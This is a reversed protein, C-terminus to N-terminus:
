KGRPQISFLLDCTKLCTEQSLLPAIWCLRPEWFGPPADIGNTAQRCRLPKGHPHDPSIWTFEQLQAFARYLPTDFFAEEMSPDSLTFWQQMFHVRLMPHLSFLPRGNKGEPYYPAFTDVLASWPVIQEMEELFVQKRTNKLSLNLNLSTKQM